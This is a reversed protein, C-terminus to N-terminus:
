ERIRKIFGIIYLAGCDCRIRIGEVNNLNLVSSCNPCKLEPIKTDIPVEECVVEDVGLDLLDIIGDPVGEFTLGKSRVKRYIEIESDAEMIGLDRSGIINVHVKFKTM